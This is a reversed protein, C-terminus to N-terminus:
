DRSSELSRLVLDALDGRLKLIGQGERSPHVRNTLLVICLDSGPDCWISTGTFGTHGFAGASLLTGGSGGPEFSDWGLARTSGEVGGDRRTALRALKPSLWGRGGGLFAVGLRALDSARAFLGAHGSVGGMAAANEDHVEGQILRGRWPDRETPAADLVVGEAFRASTMGLPEFVERRAVAAFPEGTVKEICAMLLMMGLDSYRYAEGPLADLESGAVAAIIAAKGKSEKYFARHAPLGSSHALLQRITIAGKAGSAFAPLIEVVRQDLQLLGRDVLRLATPMTACVKTLSAIDYLTDAMAAPADGAYSERGVAVEAILRDRRAIAVVAGPTIKAQVAARLLEAIRDQLGSALGEMAPESRRLERGPLYSLGAALRALGPIQVPMRGTVAARGILGQAAARACADTDAFACLYTSIKPFESLLYPNGFSIALCRPHRDLLDTIEAFSAPLGIRGSFERVGFHSSLILLPARSAAAIATSIEAGSSGAHLSYERLELGGRALGQAFLRGRESDAEDGVVLLVGKGPSLPLLGDRDRCLTLGRRSLEAALQGHAPRALVERWDEAPGKDSTLLGLRSKAQLIALAAADILEPDAGLVARRALLPDPPMLLVDAGAQLAIKAAQEPAMADRVGGMNLADTVILGDFGLDERLIGTLIRRSMTAPVSADEGLGPAALHGTMISAVGAAVAARFPLLEVQELRQRDGPLTPMSLHSDTAVDGHGPFHKGTALMGGAQVGAIFASGLRAVEGPDEGFSRLNIIPNAPNVNVDLVPAFCWHFGLARGEVATVMGAARALRELGTAGILMNSGLHTAGDLRYGVGAEFDSAILLPIRAAAQLRLILAVAEDARGLSLIVGGLADARVWDELEARAQDQGQEQSRAWSMFLQGARQEPSM